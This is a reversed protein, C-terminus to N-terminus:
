SVCVRRRGHLLDERCVRVAFADDDDLTSRRSVLRRVHDVRDFTKDLPSNYTYLLDYNIHACTHYIWIIVYLYIYHDVRDFTKDLPTIYIYILVYYIHM